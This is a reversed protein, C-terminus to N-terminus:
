RELPINQMNGNEKSRGGSGEYQGDADLSFLVEQDLNVPTNEPVGPSPISVTGLKNAKESLKEDVTGESSNNTNRKTIRKMLRSVTSTTKSQINDSNLVNQEEILAREYKSRKSCNEVFNRIVNLSVDEQTLEDSVATGRVVPWRGGYQELVRRYENLLPPCVMEAYVSKGKVLPLKSMDEIYASPRPMFLFAGSLIAISTSITTDLTLRLFRKMKSPRKLDTVAISEVVNTNNKKMLAAAAASLPRLHSEFRYPRSGVLMDNNNKAILKKIWSSLGRGSRLAVFSFLGLALTKNRVTADRKSKSEVILAAEASYEEGMSLSHSGSNNRSPITHRQQRGDDNADGYNQSSLQNSTVVQESGSSMGEAIQSCKEMMEPSNIARSIAHHFNLLLQGRATWAERQLSPPSTSVASKSGSSISDDGVKEHSSNNNNRSKLFDSETNSDEKKVSPRLGM